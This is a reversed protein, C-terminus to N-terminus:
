EFPTRLDRDLPLREISFFEPCDVFGPLSTSKLQADAADQDSSFVGILKMDVSDDELSPNKHWLLFVHAEGSEQTVAV